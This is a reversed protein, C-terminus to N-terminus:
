VVVKIYTEEVMGNYQDIVTYTQAFVQAQTSSLGDGNDEIDKSNVAGIELDLYAVEALESYKLYNQLSM